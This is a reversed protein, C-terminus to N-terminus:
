AVLLKKPVYAEGAFLGRVALDDQGNMKRFLAVRQEHWAGAAVVVAIDLGPKAQTHVIDLAGVARELGQQLFFLLGVALVALFQADAVM